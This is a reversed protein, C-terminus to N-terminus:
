FRYTVGLRVNRGPMPAIDKLFSVHERAEANFLNRAEAFLTLGTEGSPRWAGFLNVLTYGDTPLEFAAIDTQTGVHRVELHADVPDSGYRLRATVSYPPIRAAPGLDTDAKVLDASGELALQRDGDQWVEYAAQAEFGRFDAGTQVYAFVPFTETHGGDTVSVNTGTDRADIFGDYHSAYIHLDGSLRGRDLHLTGELTTVEENRLSPDGREYAATAVHLGDAFLEVESPARANRALSIGLFVGRVPRYSISGSASWNDFSLSLPTLSGLPTAELRRQDFRLGGEFGFRGLDLRQVVYGGRETISTTPVYAEEGTAQFHRNLAQLGIAGNWGGRQRQILDTRAEWGNSAFVTGPVAVDEFETHTYDAHGYAARVSRFPGGAFDYQGRLDYRRQQLQIFVTPEAVVGYTSRTDVYSLGFFGTDGVYSGGVGWSEVRSASNPLVATEVRTLGEAQALRRSLAPAPIQYDDTERRMGDVHLVFRGLGLNAHGGVSLGQDVSSVQTSMQGELRPDPAQEPIRGDMINVVGGIAAGGYILTSPGRIIEIRGSEAPDSAVQHDPSISSADILGVGNTLVQVRPGSLGRIVPRSAGPAFASSRLGPTGSLLDGIGASPAVALQDQDIVTTAVTTARQSTGYPTATVVVDDVVDPPQTTDQAAVPHPGLAFAAVTTMLVYRFSM